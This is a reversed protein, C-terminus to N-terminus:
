KMRRLINTVKRLKFEVRSCILFWIKDRTRINERRMQKRVYKVCEKELINRFGYIPREYIRM